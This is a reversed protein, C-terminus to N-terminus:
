FLDKKFLHVAVKFISFNVVPRGNQVALLFLIYLTFWIFIDIKDNDIIISDAQPPPFFEFGASPFTESYWVEPAQGDSITVTKAEM